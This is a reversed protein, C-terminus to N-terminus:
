WPSSPFLFSFGRKMKGGITLASCFRRSEITWKGYPYTFSGAGITTVAQFFSMLESSLTSNEVRSM